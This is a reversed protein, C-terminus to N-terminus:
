MLNKCSQLELYGCLCMCMVNPVVKLDVFANAPKKQIM